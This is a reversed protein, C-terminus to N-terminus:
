RSLHTAATLPSISTIAPTTIRHQKLLFILRPQSRLRFRDDKLGEGCLDQLCWDGEVRDGQRRCRWRVLWYGLEFVSGIKGEMLSSWDRRSSNGVRVEGKLKELGRLWVSRVMRVRGLLVGVSDM